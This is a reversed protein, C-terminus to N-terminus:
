HGTGVYRVGLEQLLGDLGNDQLARRDLVAPRLVEAQVLAVVILRAPAGADVVVVVRVDRQDTVLARGSRLGVFRAPPYHFARQRPERLASGDQDTPVLLGLVVEAQEFEGAGQEPKAAIMPKGRRLLRKAFM